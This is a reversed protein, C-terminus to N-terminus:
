EIQQAKMNLLQLYSQIFSNRFWHAYIQRWDLPAELHPSFDGDFINNFDRTLLYGIM